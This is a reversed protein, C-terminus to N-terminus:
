VLADWTEVMNIKLLKTLKFYAAVMWSILSQAGSQLVSGQAVPAEPYSM